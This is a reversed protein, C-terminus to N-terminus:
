GYEMTSSFNERDRPMQFGEPVFAIGDFDDTGLPINQTSLRARLEPRRGYVNSWCSPLVAATQAANYQMLRPDFSTM